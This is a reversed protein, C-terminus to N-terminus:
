GQDVRDLLQDILAIEAERGLLFPSSSRPIRDRQKQLPLASKKPRKAMKPKREVPSLELGTGLRVRDHALSSPMGCGAGKSSLPHYGVSVHKGPLRSVGMPSLRATTGSM